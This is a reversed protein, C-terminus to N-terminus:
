FATTQVRGCRVSVGVLIERVCLVLAERRRQSRSGAVSECARRVRSERERDREQLIYIYLLLLLFAQRGARLRLLLVM